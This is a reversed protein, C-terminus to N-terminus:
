VSPHSDIGTANPDVHGPIVHLLFTTLLRAV